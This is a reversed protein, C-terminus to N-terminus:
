NSQKLDERVYRRGRGNRLTPTVGSRLARSEDADIFKRVSQM